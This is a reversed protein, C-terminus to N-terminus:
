PICSFGQESFDLDFTFATHIGRSRMTEFSTCDVLSLGRRGSTLLAAIALNHQEIGIWFMAMRNTLSIFDHVAAMGLRNQLLAITELLIYNSCALQNPVDRISTWAHAAADHNKDSRDILAYFASTDIFIM